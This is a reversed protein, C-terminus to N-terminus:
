WNSSAGSPSYTRKMSEDDGMLADLITTIVSQRSPLNASPLAGSLGGEIKDMLRRVLPMVRDYAEKEWARRIEVDSANAQHLRRLADSTEIDQRIRPLEALIRQVDAQNRGMHSANLSSQSLLQEGQIPVLQTEARVKEAQASSLEAQAATALQQTQLLKTQESAVKGTNYATGLEPASMSATAGGPTSAGNGLALVRNLGAKELDAAARQYATNSMYQQWDQNAEASHANFAAQGLSGVLNLGSSMLGGFDM